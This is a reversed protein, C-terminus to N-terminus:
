SFLLKHTCEGLLTQLVKTRLLEARISSKNILLTIAKLDESISSSSFVSLLGLMTSKNLRQAM